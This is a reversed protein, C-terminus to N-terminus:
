SVCASGMRQSLMDLLARKAGPTVDLEDLAQVLPKLSGPKYLKDDGARLYASVHVLQEIDKRQVAPSKPSMGVLKKAGDAVDDVIDEFWNKLKEASPEPLEPFVQRDALGMINLLGELREVKGDLFKYRSGTPLVGFNEDAFRLGAQRAGCMVWKRSVASLEPDQGGGVDGHAGAFWKQQFPASPDLPDAFGAAANRADLNTWPTPRLTNRREDLALAHRASMVHDGLKLNHFGFKRSVTTTGWFKVVGRMVVTDFVGVYKVRPAKRTAEDAAEPNTVISYDRRFDARLQKYKPEAIEDHQYLDFGENVFVAKDRKILGCVRIFGALSRVCFAGRSFGFLYIEDGAEYNLSLFLYAGIIAEEAGEGVAGKLVRDKTEGLFAEGGIGPSYYVIQQVGDASPLTELAVHAVNTITKTVAMNQWTGDLCVVLRKM